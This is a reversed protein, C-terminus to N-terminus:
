LEALRTLRAKLEEVPLGVVTSEFGEVVSAFAGARGQIAYAGAKGMPEGSAVYEAIQSADLPEFRVTSTAVFADHGGPWRLAVGTVVVHENGALLALMARADAPGDPKALQRWADGAALAVVTDGSVVLANPHRAAVRDGKAVALAKATAWPDPVTLADEDVDAADVEAVDVLTSLLDLRRPSASALVVRWPLDIPM